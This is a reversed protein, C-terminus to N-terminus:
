RAVNEHAPTARDDYMGLDEVMKAMGTWLPSPMAAYFVRRDGGPSPGIRQVLGRRELAKMQPTLLSPPVNMRSSLDRASVGSAGAEVIAALLELRHKNGFVLASLDRLTSLQMLM